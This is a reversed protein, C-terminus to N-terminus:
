PDLTARAAQVSAVIDALPRVIRANTVPAFDFIRRHAAVLDGPELEYDAAASWGAQVEVLRDRTLAVRLWGSCQDYFAFPLLVVPGGGGALRDLTCLWCDLTYRADLHGGNIAFDPHDLELSCGFRSTGLKLVLRHPHEVDPEITLGVLRPSAPACGEIV